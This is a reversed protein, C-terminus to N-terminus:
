LAVGTFTRFRVASVPYMYVPLKFPVACNESARSPCWVKHSSQSQVSVPSFLHVGQRHERVLVSSLVPGHGFSLSHHSCTRSYDKECKKQQQRESGVAGRSM